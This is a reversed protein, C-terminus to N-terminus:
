CGIIVLHFLDFWLIVLHVKIREEVKERGAGYIFGVKM